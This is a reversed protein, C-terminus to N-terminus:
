ATLMENKLFRKFGDIDKLILDSEYHGPRVETVDTYRRYNLGIVESIHSFHELKSMAESAIEIIKVNKNCFLIHTLAAGHVSVIMKARSFLRMQEFLPKGSLSVTQFGDIHIDDLLRRQVSDQLRSIYIYEPYPELSIYNKYLIYPMFLKRVYIYADPDVGAERSVPEPSQFLSVCNAPCQMTDEIRANPYLMHLLEWIYNHGKNCHQFYLRKLDIYICDPTYTLHRLNSLVYILYHYVNASSRDPLFISVM